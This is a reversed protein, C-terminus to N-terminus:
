ALHIKNGCSCVIKLWKGAALKQLVEPSKTHIARCEQCWFEKNADLPRPPKRYHEWDIATVEKYEKASEPLSDLYGIMHGRMCRISVLAGMRKLSEYSNPEGPDEEIKQWTRCISCVEYYVKTMAM